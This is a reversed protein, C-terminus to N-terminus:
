KMDNPLEGVKFEVKRIEGSDLMVDFVNEELHKLETVLLKLYNRVVTSSEEEDTGFMMYTEDSSPLREGVNLFSLLFTTGCIPAGDCGIALVFVFSEPDQKPFSSFEHLKDNRLTNANLYFQALRPAYTKM